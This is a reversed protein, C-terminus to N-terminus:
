FYALFCSAVLLIFMLNGIFQVRHTLFYQAYIYSLPLALMYVFDVEIGPILFMTLCLFILMSVVSLIGRRQNVVSVPYYTLITSLSVLLLLLLTGLQVQEIIPINRLFVGSLITDSFVLPLEELHDTWFYYFAVFMVPTLLGLLLASIDKMTSRGSFFLVCIAWLVLLIFKPYILVALSIFFAFNYISNNSKTDNIAKQLGSLAIASLFVSILLYSFGISLILGSTMLVYIFSPLTTTQSLFKYRENIFFMLYALALVMVFGLVMTITPDLENIYSINIVGQLQSTSSFSKQVHYSLFSIAMVIFPLVFLM